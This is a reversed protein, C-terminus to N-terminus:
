GLSVGGSLLLFIAAGAVIVILIIGVPLVWKPLGRGMRGIAESDACMAAIQAEDFAHSIVAKVSRPDLLMLPQVLDQIQPIKDDKDKVKKRIFKHDENRIKMKGAEWLALALPNLLCAKGSYGVFMPKGLGVLHSRKTVWDGFTRVARKLTMPQSGASKETSETDEGEENQAEKPFATAEDEATVEEEEVFKPLIKYRDKKESVCIGGGMRENVLTIVARGSDHVIYAPILNKRKAAIFTRATKPFVKYYVLPIVTPIAFLSIWGILPIVIDNFLLFIWTLQDM